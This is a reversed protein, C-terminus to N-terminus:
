LRALCGLVAHAEDPQVTRAEYFKRRAAADM